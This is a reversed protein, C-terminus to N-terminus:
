FKRLEGTNKCLIYAIFLMILIKITIMLYMSYLIDIIYDLM